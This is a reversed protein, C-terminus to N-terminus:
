FEAIVPIHKVMHQGSPILAIISPLQSEAQPIGAQALM